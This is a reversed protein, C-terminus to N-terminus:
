PVMRVKIEDDVQAIDFVSLFNHLGDILGMIDHNKYKKPLKKEADLIIKIQIKLAKKGCTIEKQQM